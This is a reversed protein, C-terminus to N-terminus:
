NQVALYYMAMESKNKTAIKGRYEWQFGTGAAEKAADGVNIRGKECVEELRAATNVTDGWIDYAFKKTGVVGAVVPGFHIGIRADFHPRGEKKRRTAYETLFGQIAVAARLIDDPRENRDTLGTACIYADGVTKIKEIRGKTIIADFQSFCYDLEQVLEEPQMAEAVKTFGVFDVFMVTAREYRRAAVKNRVTLEAAVAQPLINLLLQESRRRKEEIMANKEAMEGRIRRDSRRRLYYLLFLLLLFVGLLIPLFRGEKKKEELLQNMEVEQRKMRADSVRRSQALLRESRDRTYAHAAKYNARSLALQELKEVAALAMDQQEANTSDRVMKYYQEARDTQKNSSCLDGAILAAEAFRRKDRLSQALSLAQQGYNVGKAANNALWYRALRLNAEYQTEPTQAAQLQKQLAEEEQAYAPLAMSVCAVFFIHFLTRISFLISYTVFHRFV